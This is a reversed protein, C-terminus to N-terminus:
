QPGILYATKSQQLNCGHTAMYVEDGIQEQGLVIDIAEAAGTRRWRDNTGAMQAAAGSVWYTHVPSVHCGKVHRAQM